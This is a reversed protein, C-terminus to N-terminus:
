TKDEEEMEVEKTSNAQAAQQLHAQHKRRAEFATAAKREVHSDSKIHDIPRSLKGINQKIHAIRENLAAEKSREVLKMVKNIAFDQSQEEDNLLSM